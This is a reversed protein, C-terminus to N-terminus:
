GLNKSKIQLNDTVNKDPPLQNFLASSRCFFGGRSITLKSQINIMNEHRNPMDQNESFRLKLNRALYEPQQAHIAKQATELTSYSTLQQVSLDGTAQTLQATSTRFPLGSKLRMVKNQLVQLKRNDERKFASFRRKEQDLNPIDWVHSFVQLCYTLKSHFLGSCFLNFKNKPMLHVFKKLLGVRQNLQPILGPCNDETRWKEGHLYETWTMENNVTLGLLRESKTDRITSGCVNIEINSNAGNM